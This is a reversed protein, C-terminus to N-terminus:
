HIVRAIEALIRSIGDNDYIPDIVGYNERFIELGARDKICYTIGEEVSNVMKGIGLNEAKTAIADDEIFGERKWVLLPVHARVAESVTSYGCKTIVCDCMGIWNQSETEDDPIILANPIRIGSPLLVRINLNSGILSSVMDPVAPSKGIFVLFAEEPIGLHSRMEQRSRTIGRSVLSVREKRPFKDMDIDFPLILAKTARQYADELRHLENMDPFLHRYITDWSFNSIALSPIGLTDAVLFPQPAIDSIILDVNREKSFACERYIDEDWSRIWAIFLERTKKRDVASLSDKLPIEIDNRCPIVSIRPHALSNQTFGFPGFTKAIVQIDNHSDVIARIIAIARAAHGNGYDSIYFCITKM